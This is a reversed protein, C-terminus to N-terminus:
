ISCRLGRLTNRKRPRPTVEEAPSTLREARVNGEGLCDVGLLPMTKSM